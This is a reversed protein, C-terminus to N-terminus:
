VWAGEDGRDLVSRVGAVACRMHTLMGEQDTALGVMRSQPDVMAEVRWRKNSDLCKGRWGRRDGNRAGQAVHVMRKLVGLQEGRTANQGSNSGTHGASRVRILSPSPCPANPKATVSMKPTVIQLLIQNATPTVTTM